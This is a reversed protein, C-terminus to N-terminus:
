TFKYNYKTKKYNKKKFTTLSANPIDYFDTIKKTIVRNLYKVNLMEKLKSKITESYNKDEPIINKKNSLLINEDMDCYYMLKDYWMHNSSQGYNPGAKYSNLIIM